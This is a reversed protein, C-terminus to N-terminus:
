MLCVQWSQMILEWYYKWASKAFVMDLSLVSHLHLCKFSNLLNHIYFTSFFYFYVASSAQYHSFM